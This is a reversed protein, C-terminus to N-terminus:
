EDKADFAGKLKDNLKDVFQEKRTFYGDILSIGIFYIAILGLPIAFLMFTELNSM